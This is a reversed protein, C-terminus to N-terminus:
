HMRRKVYFKNPKLGTRGEYSGLFHLSLAIRDFLGKTCGLSPSDSNGKNDECITQKLTSYYDVMSMVTLLTKGMSICM